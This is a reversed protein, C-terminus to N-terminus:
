SFWTGFIRPIKHLQEEIEEILIPSASASSRIISLPDKHDEDLYGLILMPVPPDAESIKPIRPYVM